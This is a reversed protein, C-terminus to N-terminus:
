RQPSPDSAEFRGGPDAWAEIVQVARGVGDERRIAEGLRQANEVYPPADIGALADALAGSRLSALPLPAPGAGLANVRAAWFPQDVVLPCVLTPRGWRLGQHTSGAGGHHVVAACRPFLWEHPAAELVHWRGAEAVSPSQQEMAGWGRAILARRGALRVAEIVTRTLAGADRAPMSGFGIYVPAPGQDLFHQLARDPRWPERGPRPGAADGADDGAGSERDLFWAGTLHERAPWDSPRPVLAASFGHLRPVERGRPDFGALPDLWGGTRLAPHRRLFPAIMTKMGAHMGLLWAGSAVRNFRPGREAVPALSGAYATTAAFGPQLFAPIAAIRLGRAIWPAVFATPHYVLLEPAFRRASQLMDDLQQQMSARSRWWAIWKGRTSATAARALPSQTFARFDISLPEFGLGHGVVFDAFDSPACVAVRHGRHALGIGLAVQPQVDGRSGLGM